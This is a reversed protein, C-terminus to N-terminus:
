IHFSKKMFIWLHDKGKLFRNTIGSLSEVEDFFMKIWTVIQLRKKSLKPYM